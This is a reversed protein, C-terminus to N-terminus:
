TIPTAGTEARIIKEDKIHNFVLVAEAKGDPVKM